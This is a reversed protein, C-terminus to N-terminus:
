HLFWKGYCRTHNTYLFSLVLALLFLQRSIKAWILATISRWYSLMVTCQHLWCSNGVALTFGSWVYQAIWALMAEEHLGRDLRVIYGWTAAEGISHLDTLTWLWKIRVYALEKGLLGVAALVSASEIPREADILYHTIPLAWCLGTADSTCFHMKRQWVVQMQNTQM